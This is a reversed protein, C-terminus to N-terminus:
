STPYEFIINSRKILQVNSSLNDNRARKFRLCQHKGAMCFKEGARIAIWRRTFLKMCWALAFIGLTNIYMTPLRMRRKVNRMRQMKSVMETNRSSQLSSHFYHLSKGEHYTGSQDHRTNPNSVGFNRFSDCCPLNLLVLLMFSRVIHAVSRGTM